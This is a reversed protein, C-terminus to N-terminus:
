KGSEGGAAETESSGAESAEAAKAAEQSEAQVIMQAAWLPYFEKRMHIGDVPDYLNQNDAVIGNVDIWGTETGDIAQHVAESFEPIRRWVDMVEFAKDQAPIISNVYIETDPFEQHMKQLIETYEAVYEAPEKWYGISVDNLGYCLFIRSPNINHLEEFHPEINRITAGGEALVQAQPLFKYVYFGVARSDGMIVTDGFLSWVDVTGDTLETLRKQKQEESQAALLAEQQKKKEEEKIADEVASADKEEQETLYATGEEVDKKGPAKSLRVIVFALIAALVILAVIILNRVSRKM